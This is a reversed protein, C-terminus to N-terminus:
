DIQPKPDLTLAKYLSITTDQTKINEALRKSVSNFENVNLNIILLSRSTNNQQKSEVHGM